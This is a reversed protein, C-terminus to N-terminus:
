DKMRADGTKKAILETADATRESATVLKNMPGQNAAMSAAAGGFSIAGASTAMMAAGGAVATAAMAKGPAVPRAAEVSARKDAASATAADFRARADALRKAASNEEADRRIAATRADRQQQV